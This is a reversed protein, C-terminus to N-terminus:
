GQNNIIQAGGVTMFEINGLQLVGSLLKFMDRSEEETFGLVKLADMVSNFLEKDNLSKDKLCGSQSLYHFSEPPDGLFYQEKHEKTAGALLAYFIHYNREGPNQRVVRN